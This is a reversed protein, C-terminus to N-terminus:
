HVKLALPNVLQNTHHFGVTTV